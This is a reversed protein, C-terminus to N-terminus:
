KLGEILAIAQLKCGATAMWAAQEIATMQSQPVIKLVLTVPPNKDFAVGYSGGDTFLTAPMSVLQSDKDFVVKATRAGIKIAVLGDGATDRRWLTVRDAAACGVGSQHVSVAWPSPLPLSSGAGRVTSVVGDRESLLATLTKFVREDVVAPLNLRDRLVGSFPGAIRLAQGARDILALTEGAKLSIRADAGLLSGIKFGGVDATVVAVAQDDGAARAPLGFGAAAFVFLALLAGLGRFIGSSRCRGVASADNLVKNRVATRGEGPTGAEPAHQGTRTTGDHPSPMLGRRAPLRRSGCPNAIPDEYPSM